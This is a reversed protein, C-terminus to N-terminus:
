LYRMTGDDLPRPCRGRVATVRTRTGSPDGIQLLSAFNKALRKNKLSEALEHLKLDGIQLNENDNGHLRQEVITQM